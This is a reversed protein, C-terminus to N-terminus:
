KAPSLFQEQTLVSATIRALGSAFDVHQVDFAGDDRRAITMTSTANALTVQTDNSDLTNIINAAKNINQHSLPEAEKMPTISQDRLSSMSNDQSRIVWGSFLNKGYQQQQVQQKQEHQAQQEQSM